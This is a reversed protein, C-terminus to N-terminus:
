LILVLELREREDERELLKAKSLPIEGASVSAAEIVLTKPRSRDIDDLKDRAAEIDRAKVHVLAIVELRLRDTVTTLDHARVIVVDVM